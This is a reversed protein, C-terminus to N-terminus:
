KEIRYLNEIEQAVAVLREAFGLIKTEDRGDTVLLIAAPRQSTGIRVGVAIAARGEVVFGRTISFGDVRARSVGEPDSKSSPSLAQIALRPASPGKPHVFGPLTDLYLGSLSPKVSMSTVIDENEVVLLMLTNSVADAGRQLIPKVEDAISGTVFQALELLGVGLRYLKGEDRHILRYKVLTRLPRYMPPREIDLRKSLETVTLGKPNSALEFLLRIARDLSKADEM